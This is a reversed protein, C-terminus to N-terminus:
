KDPVFRSSVADFKVCDDIMSDNVALTIFWGAMDESVVEPNNTQAISVTFQNGDCFVGSVGFRLSGSSSTVYVLILSHDDFFVEDYKETADNFSPQQDYGYNMSLVGDFTYKFDNLEKLTDFRYIPHDESGYAANKDFKYGNLGSVYIQEDDTWNAYSVTIEFAENASVGGPQAENKTETDKPPELDSVGFSIYKLLMENFENKENEALALSKGREADNFTGCTSSYKYVEDGVTIRVDNVCDCLGKQWKGDVTDTILMADPKSVYAALGPDRFANAVTIAPNVTGCEEPPVEKSCGVALVVFMLVLMISIIKKM